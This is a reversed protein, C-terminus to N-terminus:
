PAPDALRQALDPELSALEAFASAPLAPPRDAEAAASSAAVGASLVWIQRHDFVARALKRKPLKGEFVASQGAPVKVKILATALPAFNRSNITVRLKLDADRACSSFVLGAVAEEGWLLVDAFFDGPQCAVAPASAFLMLVAAILRKM